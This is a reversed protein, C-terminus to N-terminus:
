SAIYESLPRTYKEVFLASQIRQNMFAKEESTLEHPGIESRIRAMDRFTLLASARLELQFFECHFRTKHNVDENMEYNFASCGPCMIVFPCNSCEQPQIYIPDIQINDELVKKTCMPTFRHCPYQKGDVDIAILSKGLGCNRRFERKTDESFWETLPMMMSARTIEPHDSYYDVLEHLQHAFAKLYGKKTPPPGWVDEFIVNGTCMFGLAHIHKFGQACNQISYPSLTVKVPLGYRLIFDLHKAVQAYSNSRNHNHIQATGDLSVSLSVEPHQTLWAKIEDNLLTGNTSIGFRIRNHWAPEQMYHDQIYDLLRNIQSFALLPEGGSFEIIIKPDTRHAHLLKNLAALVAHYDFERDARNHEYCYVCSLNCRETVNIVIMFAPTEGKNKTRFWISNEKIRM